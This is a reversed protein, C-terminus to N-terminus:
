PPSETRGRESHSAQLHELGLTTLLVSLDHGSIARISPWRRDPAPEGSVWRLFHTM